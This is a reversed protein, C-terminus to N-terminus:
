QPPMPGKCVLTMGFATRFIGNGCKDCGSLMLGVAVIGFLTVLRKVMGVGRADAMKGSQDQSPSPAESGLSGSIGVEELALDLRAMGVM